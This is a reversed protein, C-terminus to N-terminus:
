SSVKLPDALLLLTLLATREILKEHFIYEHLAHAGDGPTGLGDLTATFLSTTNADSAGGATAQQLELDLYDAQNRAMNWLRQNRSNKEMPPRGFGGTVSLEVGEFHPKLGLIKKSIYPIDESSLVRVDIVARSEPAVVNPSIGGEIMGINLSIGKEPDNMGYLKQVQRSLEVIANIGKAPDLGAHAPRGKVEITFRGIGKRATKLKGDIGLPPELVYARNAVKSLCRILRTSEKSGIEEDSNVLIVPEASLDLSLARITMLSFILQTIGAKMDYIGPGKIKGDDHKLPMNELTGLPWVTDCHGILLQIPLSKIRQRRRSYLAGGTNKGPFHEAFYGMSEFREKLFELIEHQPSVVSSPSEKLVLESLFLIMQEKHGNLYERVQEAINGLQTM